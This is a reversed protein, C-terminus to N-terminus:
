PVPLDDAWYGFNLRKMGFAYSGMLFGISLGVEQSRIKKRKRRKWLM